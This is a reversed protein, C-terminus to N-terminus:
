KLKATGKRGKIFLFIALGVVTLFAILAVALFIILIGSQGSKKVEEQAKEVNVTVTYNQTTGDEAKVEYVVPSSFNQPTESEPYVTAKDSIIIIPAIRTVDTGSPTNISITHNVQDIAGVIEAEFPIDFAFIMKESSKIETAATETTETTPTTEETTEAEPNIVQTISSTVVIANQEVKAVAKNQTNVLYSFIKPDLTLSFNFNIEGAEGLSSDLTGLSKVYENKEFNATQRSFADMDEAKGTLQIQNSKEDLGFQTFWVNSQTEEEMFAFVNSAFEHNQMLGNFDNIKKKYLIVETEQQKQETTGVSELKTEFDSIDRKQFVNKVIFVLYCLITAVLLSMVFYFIVDLWWIKKNRLQFIISFDM